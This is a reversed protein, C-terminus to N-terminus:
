GKRSAQKARHAAQIAELLPDPSFRVPDTCPLGTENSAAQCVERAEQESLDYTNM